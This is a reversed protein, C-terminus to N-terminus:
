KIFEMGFSLIESLYPLTILMMECKSIVTLGRAIGGEGLETAIESSIGFVYGVGVIKLACAAVDSVGAADTLGFIRSFLASLGEGLGSLLIIICLVSYVGKYKWGVASLLVGVVAMLVATMCLKIIM